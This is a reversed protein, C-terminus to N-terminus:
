WAGTFLFYGILSQLISFHYRLALSKDPRDIKGDNIYDLINELKM